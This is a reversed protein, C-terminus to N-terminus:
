EDPHARGEAGFVWLIGQLHNPMVIFADLELERRISASELWQERAFRGCDNEEMRDEVVHGFICNRNFARLTVFYAGPLAYDYHTLRISHHHHIKPDYKMSSISDRELM